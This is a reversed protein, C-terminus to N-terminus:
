AIGQDDDTLLVVAPVAPRCGGAALHRGVTARALGGRGCRGSLLLYLPAADDRVGRGRCLRPVILVHLGSCRCAVPQGLRPVRGLVSGRAAHAVGGSALFGPSPPLDRSALRARAGQATNLPARPSVAALDVHDPSAALPAPAPAANDERRARARLVMGSPLQLPASTHPAAAGDLSAAILDEDVDMNM